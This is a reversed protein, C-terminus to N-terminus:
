STEHKLSHITINYENMVFDVLRKVTGEMVIALKNNHYIQLRIKDNVPAIHIPDTFLGAIETTVFSAPKITFLKDKHIHM